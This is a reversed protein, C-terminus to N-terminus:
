EPLSYNAKLSDWTPEYPGPAVSTSAAAAADVIAQSTPPSMRSSAVEDNLPGAPRGGASAPSPAPAPVPQAPLQLAFTLALASALAAPFPFSPPKMMPYGSPPPVGMVSSGNKSFNHGFPLRSM